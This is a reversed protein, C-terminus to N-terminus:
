ISRTEAWLNNFEWGNPHFQKDPLREPTEPLLYFFTGVACTYGSATTFANTTPRAGNFQRLFAVYDAPLKLRLAEEFRVIEEDPPHPLQGERRNLPRLGLENLDRM